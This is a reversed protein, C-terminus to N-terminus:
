QLPVGPTAEIDHILSKASYHEFNKPYSVLNLDEHIEAASPIKFPSVTNYNLGAAGGFLAGICDECTGRIASHAQVVNHGQVTIPISYLLNMVVTCLAQISARALGGLEHASLSDHYEVTNCGPYTPFQGPQRSEQYGADCYVHRAPPEWYRNTPDKSESLYFLNLLQTGGTLPLRLQQPSEYIRGGPIAEARGIVLEHWISPPFLQLEPGQGIAGVISRIRAQRIQMSSRDEPIDVDLEVRHGIPVTVNFCIYVNGIDGVGDVIRMADVLQSLANILDVVTIKLAKAARAAKQGGRSSNWQISLQIDFRM